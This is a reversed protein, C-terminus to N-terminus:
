SIEILTAYGDHYNYHSGVRRCTWDANYLDIANARYDDFDIRERFEAFSSFGSWVEAIRLFGIYLGDLHTSAIVYKGLWPSFIYGTDPNAYLRIHIFVDWTSNLYPDKCVRAFIEMTSQSIREYKKLGNDSDWFWNDTGYYPDRDNIRAYMYSGPILYGRWRLANAVKAKTADGYFVITIPWDAINMDVRTESFDWNYLQDEYLWALGFNDSTAPGLYAIPIYLAFFMILFTISVVVRMAKIMVNNVRM